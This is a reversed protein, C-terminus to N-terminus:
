EYLHIKRKTLRYTGEITVALAIMATLVGSRDPVPLYALLTTLFLLFPFLAFLFFFAIQAAYGDCNDKLVGRFVRGALEWVTGKGRLKGSIKTNMAGM